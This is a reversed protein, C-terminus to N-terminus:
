FRRKRIIDEDSGFRKASLKELLLRLQRVPITTKTDINAFNSWSSHRSKNYNVALWKLNCIKRPEMDPGNPFLLKYAGMPKGNLRKLMADCQSDYALFENLIKHNILARLVDPMFIFSEIAMFGTMEWGSIMKQVCQRIKKHDPAEGPLDDAFIPESITAIFERINFKISIMTDVTAASVLMSKGPIKAIECLSKLRADAIAVVKRYPTSNLAVSLILCATAYKFAVPVALSKGDLQMARARNVDVLQKKNELVFHHRDEAFKAHIKIAYDKWGPLDALIGIFVTGISQASMPALEFVGNKEIMFHQAYEKCLDITNALCLISYNLTTECLRNDM